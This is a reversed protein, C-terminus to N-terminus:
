MDELTIDQKWSDLNQITRDPFFDVMKRELGKIYGEKMAIGVLASTFSKTVSHCVHPINKNYIGRYEEVVIYGNRIVLVSHMALNETNIYDVIENLKAANM